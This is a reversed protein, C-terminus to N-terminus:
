GNPKKEFPETGKDPDKPVNVNPDDKAATKEGDKKPIIKDKDIEVSYKEMGEKKRATNGGVRHATVKMVKIPATMEWTVGSPTTITWKHGDTELSCEAFELAGELLLKIDLREAGRYLDDMDRAM